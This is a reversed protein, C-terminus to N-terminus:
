VSFFRLVGITNIVDRVSKSAREWDIRLPPLSSIPFGKRVKSIVTLASVSANLRRSCVGSSFLARSRLAASTEWGREAATAADPDAAAAFSNLADGAADTLLGM